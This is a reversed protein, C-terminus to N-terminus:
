GRGGEGEGKTCFLESILLSIFLATLYAEPVYISLGSTPPFSLTGHRCRDLFWDLVMVLALHRFRPLKGYM